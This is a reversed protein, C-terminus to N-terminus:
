TKVRFIVINQSLSYDIMLRFLNIRLKESENRIVFSSLLKHGSLGEDGLSNKDIIESREVGFLNDLTIVIALLLFDEQDM